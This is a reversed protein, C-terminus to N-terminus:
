PILPGIAIKSLDLMYGPAIGIFELIRVKGGVAVAHRPVGPSESPEIAGVFGAQRAAVVHDHDTTYVIELVAVAPGQDKM